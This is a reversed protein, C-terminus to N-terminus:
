FMNVIEAAINDLPVVKDALGNDVIARPMGYVVCTEMNQAFATGGNKKVERIGELGDSGMGTMIVGLVAGGFADAVSKVMVNVAPRHLTDRPEESLAIEHHGARGAILMHKGGPAIYAVGALLKEGHEAEKVHVNSIGDLRDALSKTFTAPMHQVITVPVPFNKPLLPIVAQLAPPGGTSTGIAVINFKKLLKRAGTGSPILIGAPKTKPASARIAGAMNRSFRPKNQAIHKIKALLEEKIKVIDLAVFSLQKPIFDVAGLSLAELTAEAGETTLSSIMMVPTPNESMIRRLATLGDMRPMEIDLTIVDPKLKAAMDIGDEGNSAMGVVEIDPDSELMLSIAKRMFASDDVVLVKAKGM